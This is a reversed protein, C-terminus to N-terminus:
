RASSANPPNVMADVMTKLSSLLPSPSATIRWLASSGLPYDDIVPASGRAGSVGTPPGLCEGRLLAGTLEGRDLSTKKESIDPQLVPAM